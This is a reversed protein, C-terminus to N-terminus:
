VVTKGGQYISLRATNGTTDVIELYLWDINAQAASITTSTAIVNVNPINAVVWARDATVDVTTSVDSSSSLTVQGTTAGPVGSLTYSLTIVPNIAQAPTITLGIAAWSHSTALTYTGTETGTALLAKHATILGDTNAGVGNAFDVTETYGAGPTGSADGHSIALIALGKNTGSVGPGTVSTGSGTTSSIAQIPTTSDANTIRYAVIHANTANSLTATAIGATFTGYAYFVDARRTGNSINQVSPTLTVGGATVGTVTGSSDNRTVVVVYLQNTGGDLSTTSVTGAGATAGSVTQAVAVTETQGSQKNADIGLKVSVLTNTTGATYGTATITQAAATFTAYSANNSIANNPNTATGSASAPSRQLTTQTGSTTEAIAYINVGPPLVRVKTRGVPLRNSQADFSLSPSTGFAARGPGENTIEIVRRNSPTDSDIRTATTGVVLQSFVNTDLPEISIDDHIEEISSKPNGATSMPFEKYGGAGDTTTLVSRVLGTINKGTPLRILPGQNLGPDTTTFATDLFFVSQAATGNVYRIRVWKSQLPAKLKLVPFEPTTYPYATEDDKSSEDGDVPNDRQSIDVYLIGPVDSSMDCVLAVYNEQWRFWTGRYVANASLPTSSSNGMHSGQVRVNRYTEDPTKGTDIAKTLEADADDNIAENVKHTSPKTHIKKLVVQLEFFTQPTSGNVFRIRFYRLKPGYTNGKLVNASVYYKDGDPRPNTGALDRSWDVEFYGGVVDSFCGVTIDGFGVTDFWGSTYTASGALPTNTDIVMTGGTDGTDIPVRNSNSVDTNGVQLNSNLNLNDHTTQGVPLYNLDTFAAGAEDTINSSTRLTNADSAGNNYSLETGNRTINSTTRLTNTTTTGANTDFTELRTEIDNLSDDITQLEGLVQLQTAEANRTSLLVDFDSDISQVAIRINDADSEIADLSANASQLETIIQDTDNELETLIVTQSDLEANIAVAEVRIAEADSEIADLSTNATQLETKVDLLTAETARTSLAVDFDTDISQVAIRILDTDAEIADLSTNADTLKSTITDLESNIDIAQLRIADVDLEIADLSSNVSQLETLVQQQTTELAGNTTTTVWPNTGQYVTVSDNTYDLTIDQVIVNISGDTNVNLEDGDSDQIAINDGSAADIAVDVAGIVATVQADVRHRNNTEDYARVITQDASLGTGLPYLYEDAM